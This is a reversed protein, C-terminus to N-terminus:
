SLAADLRPVIVEAVTARYLARAAIGSCLGWASGGPPAHREPLHALEHRDLHALAVPVYRALQAREEVSLTPALEALMRWGFRAHGIEDSWIRTLLDRLEGEPMEAREAGVLAVAVTESMCGVSVANRLVAVRPTADEHEPLPPADELDMVAVGGLAEVVAGCLVGHTREEEAFRVCEEAAGAFGARGAQKALAEFVRSSGYENRMRGAWTAVAAVRLLGPDGLADVRPAARQAAQRLDVIV